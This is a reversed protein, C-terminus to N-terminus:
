MELDVNGMAEWEETLTVTERKAFVATSVDIRRFFEQNRANEEFRKRCLLENGFVGGFQVYRGSDIRKALVTYETDPTNVAILKSPEEAGANWKMKQGCKECYPKKSQDVIREHVIRREGVISSCCPCRFWNNVQTKAEGHGDAYDVFIVSRENMHLVPPIAVSKKLAELIEQDNM